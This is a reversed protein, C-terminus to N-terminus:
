WERIGAKYEVARIFETKAQAYDNINEWDKEALESKLLNYANREESNDRLYNRFALHRIWFPSNFEVMHIQHSRKNDSVKTFYRRYPITDEFASIYTYNCTEIPAILDNAKSFDPIGILIDIIPKASLGEISTSGIHEIFIESTQIGSIILEKELEFQKKWDQNFPALEVKM